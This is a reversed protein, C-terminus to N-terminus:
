QLIEASFLGTLGIEKNNGLGRSGKKRREGGRGGRSRICEGQEGLNFAGKNCRLTHTHTHSLSLSLATLDLAPCTPLAYTNTHTQTHTARVNIMKLASVLRTHSM